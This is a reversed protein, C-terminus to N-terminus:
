RVIGVLQLVRELPDASTSRNRIAGPAGGPGTLRGQARRVPGPSKMEPGRGAAGAEGNGRAAAVTAPTANSSGFAHVHPRMDALAPSGTVVNFSAKKGDKSVTPVVRSTGSGWWTVVVIKEKAFDVQKKIADRSADDFFESKALEEASTIEDSRPEQTVTMKVNKRDLERVGPVFPGCASVAAVTAALVAIACVNRM